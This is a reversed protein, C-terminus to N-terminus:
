YKDVLNKIDNNIKSTYGSNQNRIKSENDNIDPKGTKIDEYIYMAGKIIPPTTLYIVFVLGLFAFISKAINYKDFIELDEVSVSIIFAFFSAFVIKFLTKNPKLM